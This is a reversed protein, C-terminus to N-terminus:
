RDTLIRVDVRLGVPLRFDAPMEILVQLVDLDKRETSEHTFVTKPGMVQKILALRGEFCQDGLNKGFIQARQGEHIKHVKLEDVEARVQLRSLDAFLIVPEQRDSFNSEGIHRLIELVVGDSPAKLIRQALRQRAQDVRSQAVAVEATAVSKDVDRVNEKLAFLKAQADGHEQEAVEMAEFIEDHASQSIAQGAILKQSRNFESQWRELRLKASRLRHEAASIEQPHVGSLLQSQRARVLELEREAVQLSEQAEGADLTMLTESEKVHQGVAVPCSLIVGMTEFALARLQAVPEVFGVCAIGPASADKMGDEMSHRTTLNGREDAWFHRGITWCLSAIGAFALPLMYVQLKM